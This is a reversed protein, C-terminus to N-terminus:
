RQRAVGAGSQIPVGADALLYHQYAARLRVAQAEWSLATLDSSPRDARRVRLQALASRVSDAQPACCVGLSYQDVLRRIEPFDSALVPVRAFCYEFLKNPLCYYASLSTNEILCLGYDANRVLSVVRDHPVAEHFHINPHRRSYEVIARELRGLGVFVVHAERPGTAFADLCIEIGRGPSLMGVYIFVPEDAPIRYRERLYNGSEHPRSGAESDDAIVPANLILVGPKSGLKRLYWDIISDSVSILLDVRKWCFREILLTARSLIATQANKDSELEHADYVLRCGLHGKLFWGAPLAFTDHCHVIDPRVRRGVIIAKYTFEILLVCYRIARPLVKLVRAVMRLKWYPTGDLEVRGDENADPVGVVSVQVRPLRGLAKLEKRIRSDVDIDTNSIHLVQTVALIAEIPDQRHQLGNLGFGVYM